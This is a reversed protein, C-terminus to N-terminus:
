AVNVEPRKVNHMGGRRAHILRSKQSQGFFPDLSHLDIGEFLLVEDELANTTLFKDDQAM